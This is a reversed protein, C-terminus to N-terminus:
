SGQVRGPLGREVPWLEEADERLWTVALFNPQYSDCCKNSAAQNLTLWTLYSGHQEPSFYM